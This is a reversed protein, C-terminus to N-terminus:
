MLSIGFCKQNYLLQHQQQQSDSGIGDTIATVVPGNEHIYPKFRPRNLLNSSISLAFFRFFFCSVYEDSVLYTCSRAIVSAVVILISTSPLSLQSLRRFFSWLLRREDRLLKLPIKYSGSDNIATYDISKSRTNAGSGTCTINTSRHRVAAAINFTTAPVGCIDPGHSRPWCWYWVPYSFRTSRDALRRRQAIAFQFYFLIVLLLISNFHGHWRWGMCIRGLRYSFLFVFLFFKESQHNKWKRSGYQM